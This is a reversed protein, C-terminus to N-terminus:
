RLKVLLQKREEGSLRSWGEVIMTAAEREEQTGQERLMFINNQVAGAVIERTAREVFSPEVPAQPEPRRALTQTMFKVYTPNGILPTDQPRRLETIMMQANEFTDDSHMILRILRDVNEASEKGQRIRDMTKECFSQLRLMSTGKYGNFFYSSPSFPDMIFRTEIVFFIIDLLHDM